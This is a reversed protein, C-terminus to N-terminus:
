RGALLILAIGLTNLAFCLVAFKRPDIDSIGNVIAVGFEDPLPSAIVLGAISWLLYRRMAESIKEHHLLARIRMAIRTMRLRLVEDHFHSYRLVSVIVMDALLAGFGALPAAIFINVGSGFELFLAIAFPTTFGYSFLLGALFVSVYGFGNIHAHLADFLGAAFLVYALGFCLALSVLRPYSLLHKM